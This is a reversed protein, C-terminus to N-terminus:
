PGPAKLTSTPQAHFSVVRLTDAYEHLAAKSANYASGFVYPMVASLSGLMVITGKAKILEPAFLQCLRMVAFVNGEFMDRVDDIDLDLAPVTMNRGANNVLYNLGRGNTLQQVSTHLATLSDKSTLELPLTEIGLAALSTLSRTNRATAIVRYGLSHFEHSLALGIGSSCGTILVTERPDAHSTTTTAM